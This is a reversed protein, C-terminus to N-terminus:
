GGEKNENQKEGDNEKKKKVEQGGRVKEVKGERRRVM